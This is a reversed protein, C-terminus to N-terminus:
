KRGRYEASENKTAKRASIIRIIEDSERYCHCVVLLRTKDSIGLIIFRDENDSHDIDHKILINPDSFVTVAERFSIGHKKQNAAEKDEDWSFYQLNQLLMIVEILDLIGLNKNYILDNFNYLVYM